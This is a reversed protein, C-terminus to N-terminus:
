GLPGRQLRRLRHVWVSAEGNPVREGRVRTEGAMCELEPLAAPLALRHGRGPDTFWFEADDHHALLARVAGALWPVNRQEYVVDAALIIDASVDAPPDRWDLHQTTVQTLGLTAASADVFRLADTDWDTAVVQAAGARAAALAVLGLGCGLELVRRGRVDPMGAAVANALALSAPWLEAWYPLREDADLVEIADFLAHPDHPCLLALPGTCLPVSVTEAPYPLPLRNV